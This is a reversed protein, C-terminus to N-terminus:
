ARLRRPAVLRYSRMVFVAVEAWDVGDDLRMGVWGKPGYYPPSFFRRPDAGVLVAQSGPPAKAWVRLKRGPMKSGKARRM